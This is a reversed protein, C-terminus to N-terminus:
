CGAEDVYFRQVCLLFAKLKRHLVQSILLVKSIIVKSTVSTTLLVESIIKCDFDNFLFLYLIDM